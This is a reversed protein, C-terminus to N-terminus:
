RKRMKLVVERVFMMWTQGEWLKTGLQTGVEEKNCGSLSGVVSVDVWAGCRWGLRDASGVLEVHGAASPRLSIQEEM